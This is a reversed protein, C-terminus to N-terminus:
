NNLIRALNYNGSPLGIFFARARDDKTNISEISLNKSQYSVSIGQNSLENALLSISEFEQDDSKSLLDEGFIELWKKYFEAKPLNRGREYYGIVQQSVGLKTALEAQSIDLEARKAKIVEAVKM